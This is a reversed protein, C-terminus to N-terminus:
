HIKRRALSDEQPRNLCNLCYRARAEAVRWVFAAVLPERVWFDRLSVRDRAAFSPAEDVAKEVQSSVALTCTADTLVVSM